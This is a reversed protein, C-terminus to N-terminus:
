FLCCCLSLPVRFGFVILYFSTSCPVLVLFISFFSNQFSYFLSPFFFLLICSLTMSIFCTGERTDRTFTRLEQSNERLKDGHKLYCSARQLWLSLVSGRGSVFILTRAVLHCSNSHGCHHNSSCKLEFNQTSQLSPLPLRRPLCSTFLFTFATSIQGACSPHVSYAHCFDPHFSRCFRLPSSYTKISNICGHRFSCCFHLPSLWTRNHSFFLVQTLCSLNAVPGAPCQIHLSRDSPLILPFSVPSSTKKPCSLTEFIPVNMAATSFLIVPQLRARLFSGLLFPPIFNVPPIVLLPLRVFPFHNRFCM